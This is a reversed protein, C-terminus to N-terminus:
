HIGFLGLLGAGHHLAYRAVANRAVGLPGSDRQSVEQVLGPDPIALPQPVEPVLLITNPPALPESLMQRRTSTVKRAGMVVEGDVIVTDVDM